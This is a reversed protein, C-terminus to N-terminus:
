KKHRGFLQGIGRLGSFLETERKSYEVVQDRRSILKQLEIRAARLRAELPEVIRQIEAKSAGRDTLSKIKSKVEKESDIVNAKAENIQQDFQQEVPSKYLQQTINLPKATDFYGM